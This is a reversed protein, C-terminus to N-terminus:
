LAFELETGPSGVEIALPIGDLCRCITAIASLDEDHPSFSSRLAQTRAVFLQPASHELVLDPRVQHMPPVDLPPVRYVCEGAIRLVERSTALVSTAPCLRM